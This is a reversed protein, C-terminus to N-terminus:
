LGSNELEGLTTSANELVPRQLLRVQLSEHGRRINGAGTQRDERM